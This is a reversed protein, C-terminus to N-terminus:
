KNIWLWLSTLIGLPTAIWLIFTRMNLVTDWATKIPKLSDVKKDVIEIKTLLRQHDNKHQAIHDDLKRLIANVEDTSM